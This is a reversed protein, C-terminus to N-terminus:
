RRHNDTIWCGQVLGMSVRRVLTEAFAPCRRRESFRVTTGNM